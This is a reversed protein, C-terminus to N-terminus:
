TFDIIDRDTNSDYKETRTVSVLRGKTDYSYEWLTTEGDDSTSKIEVLKKQNTIVGDDDKIVEDDDSSNKTRKYRKTIKGELFALLSGITIWPIFLGLLAISIILGIRDGWGARNFEDSSIYCFILIIPTLYTLIWMICGLTQYLTSKSLANDIENQQEQEIKHQKAKQQEIEQQELLIRKEQQKAEIRKREAEEFYSNLENLSKLYFLQKQEENIMFLFRETGDQQLAFIINDIFSPHLMYSQEKFSIVLSKNAAIYQWTANIVNGNVSAILSGNEQFIYLEKDGSDNFIWWSKNCLVTKVDLNESFRNYRSLIDLLYTKM